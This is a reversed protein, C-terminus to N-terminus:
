VSAYWDVNPSIRVTMVEFFTLAPDFIIPKTIPPEIISAADGAARLYETIQVCILVIVVHHCFKARISKLYCVLCILEPEESRLLYFGSQQM